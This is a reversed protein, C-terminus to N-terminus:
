CPRRCSCFFERVNGQEGIQAGLLGCLDRGLELFPPHIRTAHEGSIPAASVEEEDDIGSRRFDGMVACQERGETRAVEEAFLAIKSVSRRVAVTVVVDGAVTSAINPASKADSVSWIGSSRFFISAAM